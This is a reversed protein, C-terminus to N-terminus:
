LVCVTTDVRSRAASFAAACLCVCVLGLAISVPTVHHGVLKESTHSRPRVTLAVYM